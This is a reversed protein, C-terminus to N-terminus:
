LRNIRDILRSNESKIKAHVLEHQVKNYIMKNKNYLEAEKSKISAIKDKSKIKNLRNMLRKNDKNIEYM